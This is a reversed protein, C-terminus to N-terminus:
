GGVEPYTMTICHISGLGKNALTDTRIPVVKIGFSEYIDIAEQDTSEGFVPVFITGNILLSNVYTEYYSSPRPLMTVDFGKDKFLPEYSFTDTVVSGDSLLKASEDIHGIGKQFPVRTVSNCGYDETLIANPLQAGTNKHVLFCNGTSDTMFNGGEYYFDHKILDVGLYNSFVRDEEFSHYYRADVVALRSNDSNGVYVPIPVGDRSWFGNGYASVRLVILKDEEKIYPLYTDYTINIDGTTYIIVTIDPPLNSLITTKVSFSDFPTNASFILYKTKEFEAFPRIAKKEIPPKVKYKQSLTKNHRIARELIKKSPLISLSSEDDAYSSQKLFTVCYIFSISLLLHFVKM